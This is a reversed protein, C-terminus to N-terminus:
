AAIASPKNKSHEEINILSTLTYINGGVAWGKTPSFMFIDNINNNLGSNANWTLGGDTTSYIFSSGGAFWGTNSDLFKIKSITATYTTGTGSNLNTWTNGGDVTKMLVGNIGAAWGENASIFSITTIKPYTGSQNNFQLAWNIGGDNSTLISGSTNVLWGKTTSIFQIDVASPFTNIPFGVGATYSTVPIWTAGGNTTRLFGHLTGVDNGGIWGLMSNYFFVKNWGCPSPSPQLTWSGGGNTTKMITQGNGVAWGVTPSIFFVSKVNNSYTYTSPLPQPDWNVGGNTTHLIADTGTYGVIWGENQSIFHVSTRYSPQIGNTQTQVSWSQAYGLKIILLM